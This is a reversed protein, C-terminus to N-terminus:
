LEMSDGCSLYAIQEGMITKLRNYGTEGTCHMTYFRTDAYTMLEAALAAVFTAEDTECLGSKVLHMGAFVHTPATGAIVTAQRLIHVIGGHACGALLVVKGDEEILLSQEHRFDDNVDTQPGFLLRNGPPRLSSGSVGAFLTLGPGISTRDGCFTLRRNTQLDRCLGIDTLGTERLSYHPDFAHKHVFVPAKENVSLFTQLGGGHDYHGHSVVAVDIEPISIGLRAANAAFLAGQGMDFLIRRGDCTQVHLSLGHEAPLNRRSTDDVLVTIKM